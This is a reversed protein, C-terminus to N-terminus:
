SFLEDYSYAIDLAGSAQPKYIDLFEVIMYGRERYWDLHCYGPQDVRFCTETSYKGWYGKLLDANKRSCVGRSFLYELFDDAEEQTLCRVVTKYPDFGSLDFDNILDANM